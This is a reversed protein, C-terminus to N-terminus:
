SAIRVGLEPYLPAWGYLVDTRTPLADNNITYARVIRLSLGAQDDSARGAFDVGEPVPLDATALTIANKHFLFNQKSQVAAAATAAISFPAVAATTSTSQVAVNQFQGATIIAPSVTVNFPTTGTGNAQAQVVFNRLRGYSQRNQPNVAFVGALSIVDGANLQLTASPTLLITSTSAWGSSIGFGGASAGTTDATMTGVTGGTFFGFTQLSVNQDMMWDMGASDRGMLGKRFQRDLNQAPTFLGKLSDVITASTFPEIVVQRMGDRPAAESDLIAAATLYTILGTPASGAVGVISATQLRAQNLGDFDVRNAVAAIIPKLVRDAYLDIALLRDKTSFQVDVHFQTTLTVPRSSEYFDEVNLGPGVTGIFRGPLRVNVTDGIKAGDVGFQDSYSRNVGKTFTLENELVMLAKNTIMSIDLLNNNRMVLGTMCVFRWVFSYLTDSFIAVIAAMLAVQKKLFQM